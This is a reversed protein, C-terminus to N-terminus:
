SKPRWVSFSATEYEKTYSQMLWTRLVTNALFHEESRWEERQLALVAPPRERLDRLLGASGYGPEEAAFEIIVPHSWFFRSSSQRGSKWCVSGGSFGFVYIRDNTATTATIYRALKENELPDHKRGNFRALYTDRDTRGLMHRLDYTVNEVLGPMGALRVGMVPENSGVRWLGAILLAGVAARIIPQSFRLTALGASAALALAPFAQVFYNPLSRSGNIGISLAAAVLWALIVTTGSWSRQRWLLLATGIGGVFWLPDVRARAIPFAFLYALRSLPGEYTEGAYRLNYIVTALWLDHLAGNLAFYSLIVVSLTAFGAGMWGADRIVGRLDKGDRWVAAAAVAAIVYTGANYKLWFAFGLLVGCAFLRSPGKGSASLLLLTATVSLFIFPECQARVFVGSM